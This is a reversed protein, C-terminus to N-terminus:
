AQGRGGPPVSCCICPAHNTHLPVGFLSSGDRYFVLAPLVHEGADVLEDYEDAAVHGVEAAFRRVAARSHLVALVGGSLWRHVVSPRRWSTIRALMESGPLAVALAVSDVPLGERHIEALGWEVWERHHAAWAALVAEQYAARETKDVRRTM